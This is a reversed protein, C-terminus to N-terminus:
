ISQLPCCPSTRSANTTPRAPKRSAATGPMAPPTAQATMPSGRPSTIFSLPLASFRFFRRARSRRRNTPPARTQKRARREDAPPRSLPGSTLGATRKCPPCHLVAARRAARVLPFLQHWPWAVGTLRGYGGSCPNRRKWNWMCAAVLPSPLYVYRRQHVQTCVPRKSGHLAQGTPYTGPPQEALPLGAAHAAPPQLRQHPGPLAAAGRQRGQRPAPITLANSCGASTHTASRMTRAPPSNCWRAPSWFSSLKRSRRAGRRTWTSWWKRIILGGESPAQFRGKLNVVNSLARLPESDARAIIRRNQM